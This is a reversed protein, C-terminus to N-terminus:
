AKIPHPLKGRARDEASLTRRADRVVAARGQQVLSPPADRWFCLRWAFARPSYRSFGARGVFMGAAPRLVVAWDTLELARWPAFSL